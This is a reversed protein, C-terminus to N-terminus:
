WTSYLSLSWFVYTCLLDYYYMNISSYTTNKNVSHQQQRQNTGTIQLINWITQEVVFMTQRTQEFNRRTLHVALNGKNPKTLGMKNPEIIAGKINAAFGHKPCTICVPLDLHITQCKLSRVQIILWTISSPVSQIMSKSRSCHSPFGILFCCTKLVNEKYEHNRLIILIIYTYSSWYCHSKYEM